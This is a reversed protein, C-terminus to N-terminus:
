RMTPLDLPRTKVKPSLTWTFTRSVLKAFRVMSRSNTPMREPRTPLNAFLRERLRSAGLPPLTIGFPFSLPLLVPRLYDKFCLSYLMFYLTPILFPKSIFGKKITILLTQYEAKIIQAKHKIRKTWCRLHRDARIICSM